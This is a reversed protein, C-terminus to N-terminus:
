GDCLAAIFSDASQGLGKVPQDKDVAFDDPKTWAVAHEDDTEVIMITNSTGDTIDKIALGGKGPFVTELGRLTQYVTKGEGAVKSSPAKFLAPMKAILPKNHKSDWPEDLHFQEYLP